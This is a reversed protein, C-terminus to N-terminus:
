EHTVKLNNKKYTKVNILSGMMLLISSIYFFILLGIFNGLIGYIHNYSAFDQLYISFVKLFILWVFTFFLSGYINEQFKKTKPNTFVYLLYITMLIFIPIITFKLFTSIFSINPTILTINLNILINSIMNILIELSFAIFFTIILFLNIFFGFIKNLLTKSITIINNPYNYFYFNIKMFYETACLTSIIIFIFSLSFYSLNVKAFYNTLLSNIFPEIYEPTKNTISNILIDHNIPLLPILSLILIIFPFFSLTLYFSLTAANDLIQFKNLINLIYKLFDKFKNTINM